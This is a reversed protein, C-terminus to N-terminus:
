IQLRISKELNQLSNIFCIMVPDTPTIEQLGMKKNIKEAM